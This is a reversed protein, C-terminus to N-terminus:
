VGQGASSIDTPQRDVARREELALRKEPGAFPQQVLRRDPPGVRREQLSLKIVPAIPALAPLPGAVAQLADSSQAYIDDFSIDQGLSKAYIILRRAVEPPITQGKNEYHGINGQTCGIGRALAGQTVGLRIRIAKINSM